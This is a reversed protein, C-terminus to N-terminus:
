GTTVFVVILELIKHFKFRILFYKDFTLKRSMIGILFKIGMMLNNYFILEKLKHSENDMIFWNM